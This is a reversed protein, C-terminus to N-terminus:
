RIRARLRRSDGIQSKSVSIVASGNEGLPVLATGFVGFAGGTGAMIGVEGHVQSPSDDRPGGNLFAMRAADTAAESSNALIREKEEPSLRRVDATEPAAAAADVQAFAAAPVTGLALACLLLPIPRRSMTGM